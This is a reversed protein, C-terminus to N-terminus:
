ALTPGLFWGAGNGTDGDATANPFGPGLVVGFGTISGPLLTIQTDDATTGNFWGLEAAFSGGLELNAKGAPVGTAAYKVTPSTSSFYNQFTVTGQGFSTVSAAAVGLIALVLSKKM